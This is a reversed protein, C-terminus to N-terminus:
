SEDTYGSLFVKLFEYGYKKIKDEGFGTLNLNKIDDISNPRHLLLLKLNKTSIVKEPDAINNWKSLNVRCQLLNKLLSGDKSNTPTRSPTEVKTESARKVSNSEYPTASASSVTHAEGSTSVNKYSPPDDRSLRCYNNRVSSGRVPNDEYPQDPPHKYTNGHVRYLYNVGSENNAQKDYNPGDQQYVTTHPHPQDFLSGEVSVNNHLADKPVRSFQHYTYEEKNVKKNTMQNAGRDANYGLHKEEADGHHDLTDTLKLLENLSLYSNPPCAYRVKRDNLYNRINVNNSASYYKYPINNDELSKIQEHLNNIVKGKKM